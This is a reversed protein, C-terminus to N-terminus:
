FLFGRVAQELRDLESANHQLLNHTWGNKTGEHCEKGLGRGIEEFSGLGAKKLAEPESQVGLLFVRSKLDEPVNEKVRDARDSQGDFDLLLVLRREPYRRMGKVHESVFKECVSLWGGAEPLVQIRRGYRVELEFGTALQRNADDEPLVLVHPQYKNIV